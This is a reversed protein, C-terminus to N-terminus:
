LHCVKNQFHVAIESFISPDEAESLHIERESGKEM